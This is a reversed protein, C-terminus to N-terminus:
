DTPDLWEEVMFRPVGWNDGAQLGETVTRLRFNRLLIVDDSLPATEITNTQETGAGKISWSFIKTQSAGVGTAMPDRVFINASDDQVISPIRTVVTADTVLTAILSLLRWRSRSQVTESIEAGAAPDSGAVVRINSPGEVSLRNVGGPWALVSTQHVYGALLLKVLVGEVRLSIRVYCQGVNISGQATRVTLSEPIETLKIATSSLVRTTTTTVDAIIQENATYGRIQLTLATSAWSEILLDFSGGKLWKLDNLNM